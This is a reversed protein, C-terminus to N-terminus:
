KVARKKKKAGIAFLHRNSGRQRGDKGSNIENIMRSPATDIHGFGGKLCDM